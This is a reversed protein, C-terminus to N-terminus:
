NIGLYAKSIREEEWMLPYFIWQGVMRLFLCVFDEKLLDVWVVVIWIYCKFLEFLFDNWDKSLHWTPLSACVIHDHDDEDSDSEGLGQGHFEEDMEDDLEEMEFDDAMGIM